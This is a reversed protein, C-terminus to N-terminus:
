KGALSAGRKEEAMVDDPTWDVCPIRDLFGALCAKHRLATERDLRSLSVPAFSEDEMANLFGIHGKDNNICNL